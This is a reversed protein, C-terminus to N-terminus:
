LKEMTKNHEDYPRCKPARVSFKESIRIIVWFIAMNVFVELRRSIM